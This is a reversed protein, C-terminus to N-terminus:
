RCSCRISAHKNRLVYSGDIHDLCFTNSIPFLLLWGIRACQLQSRRFSSGGTSPSKVLWMKRDFIKQSMGVDDKLYLHFLDKLLLHDSVKSHQPAQLQLIDQARAM